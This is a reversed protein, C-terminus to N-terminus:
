FGVKVKFIDGIVPENYEDALGGHATEVLSADGSSGRLDGCFLDLLQPSAILDALRHKRTIQIGARGPHLLPLGTFLVGAAHRELQQADHLLM